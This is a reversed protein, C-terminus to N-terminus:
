APLKRRLLELLRARRDTPLRDARLSLLYADRTSTADFWPLAHAEIAALLAPVTRAVTEPSDVQWAMRGQDLGASGLLGGNVPLWAEDPQRAGGYVAEATWKTAVHVWVNAQLASSVAEFQLLQVYPGRQRMFHMLPPGEHVFGLSRLREGLQQGGLVDIQNVIDVSTHELQKARAVAAPQSLCAFWPVAIDEFCRTAERLAALVEDDSDITWAWNGTDVRWPALQGGIWRRSAIESRSPASEGDSFAPSWLDVNVSFSGGSRTGFLAVIHLLEGVERFFAGTSRHRAFGHRTLAPIFDQRALSLVRKLESM